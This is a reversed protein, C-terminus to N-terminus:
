TARAASPSRAAAAALPPSPTVATVAAAALAAAQNFGTVTYLVGDIMLPTGENPGTRRDPRILKNDPSQWRWAVKLNKLNSATIQSLPTYKQSLANAGYSPWDGRGSQKLQATAPGAIVALGFFLAIKM